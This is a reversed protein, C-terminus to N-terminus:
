NVDPLAYIRKLEQSEAETDFPADRWVECEATSNIERTNDNWCNNLNPLYTDEGGNLYEFIYALPPSCRCTSTFADDNHPTAIILQPVGVNLQYGCSGGDEPYSNITVLDGPSLEGYGELIRVENGVIGESFLQSQIPIGWFVLHDDTYDSVTHEFSCICSCAM